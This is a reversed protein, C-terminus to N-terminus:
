FIGLKKKKKTLKKAKAETQTTEIPVTEKGTAGTDAYGAKPPPIFAEERLRALYERLAPQLKEMYLANEVQPEVEKFSPIGATQHETVKMIIFGQKTQDVDSIDGAKMAFVKDEFVKALTGRQFDGM